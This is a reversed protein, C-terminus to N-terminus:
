CEKFSGIPTKSGVYDVKRYDEFDQQSYNGSKWKYHFMVEMMAELETLPYVDYTRPGDMTVSTEDDMCFYAPLEDVLCIGETIGDYYNTTYLIIPKDM